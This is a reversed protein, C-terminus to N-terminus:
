ASYIWTSAGSKELAAVCSSKERKSTDEEPDLRSEEWVDGLTKEETKPVM